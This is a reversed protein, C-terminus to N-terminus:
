TLSNCLLKQHRKVSKGTPNCPPTKYEQYQDSTRNKRIYNVNQIYIKKNMKSGTNVQCPGLYHRDTQGDKSIESVVVNTKRIKQM